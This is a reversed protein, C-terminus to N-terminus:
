RQSVYYCQHDLMGVTHIQDNAFEVQYDKPVQYAAM